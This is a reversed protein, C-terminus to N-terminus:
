LDRKPPPGSRHTASADPAPPSLSIDERLLSTLNNMVTMVAGEVRQHQEVGIARAAASLDDEAPPCRGHQGARRQLTQTLPHNTCLQLCLRVQPRVGSRVVSKVPRSVCCMVKWIWRHHGTTPRAAAPCRAPGGAGEQRCAQEGGTLGVSAAPPDLAAVALLAARGHDAPVATGARRHAAALEGDVDEEVVDAPERLLQRADQDQQQEEGHAVEDLPDDARPGAPVRVVVAALLGGEEVPVRRRGLVGQQVPVRLAAEPVEGGRVQRGVVLHFIQGRVLLAHLLHM